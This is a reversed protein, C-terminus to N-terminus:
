NRFNQQGIVTNPNGSIQQNVGYETNQSVYTPNATSEQISKVIKELEQKFDPDIEAQHKIKGELFPRTKIAEEIEIDQFRNKLFNYMSHFIDSGGAQLAGATIQGALYSVTTAALTLPEM